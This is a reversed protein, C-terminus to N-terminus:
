QQLDGIRKLLAERLEAPVFQEFLPDDSVFRVLSDEIGGMEATGFALTGLIAERVKQYTAEDQHIATSGIIVGPAKDYGSTDYWVIYAHQEIAAELVGYNAGGSIPLIVDAGSSIMERALEKGKSADYWNGVVRFDVSTGPAADMAGDRYGPLISRNMDPYEQGAILGIRLSSNAYEMSSSTVLGAFYGAMYAQQYQDYRLTYINPNGELFGDMVIFKQTPFRLSVEQVIEPMAPNSTVILDHDGQAAIASIKNLWEGQNTGGEIINASAHPFEDAARQAGKALMEYIPSGATVGPIFVAIRYREESAESRGAAQVATPFVAASLFLAAAAFLTIFVGRNRKIGSFKM